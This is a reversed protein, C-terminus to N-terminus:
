QGDREAWAAFTAIQACTLDFMDATPNSLTAKYWDVTLTIAEDTSLCPRWGLENRAKASDLKLIHAEHPAATNGAPQWSGGGWSGFIREVLASATLASDTAPGFNWAGRWRPGDLYLRQALELYGALPDLVHQWPRVATPNRLVLPCGRALARMVDPVLRDEAWDGGGIVNGARATAIAIPGDLKHFFSREYAATALEACAKSASYPDSGGLRDNERYGWPWERNEYCKDSTVVVAVRVSRTKRTAELANVTGMVNAAFTEVPAQYSRRVLSQAALHFVIEPECAAMAHELTSRDLLDAINSTMRRDLRCLEFYSPQTDSALAYGTVRAGMSLLWTALWGGKFGTHGTVFVSRNRWFSENLEVM